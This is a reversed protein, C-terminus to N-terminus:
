DPLNMKRLLAAYRPDSRISSLLPSNKLNSMGSDHQAYGRDLWEFAKDSEGRWAYTEAIQFALTQSDQAILQDLAHQAQEKQGLSYAALATIVLPTKDYKALVLAKEPHHDLVEVMALRFPPWMSGPNLQQARSAAERAADFQHQQALVRSLDVWAADSLPDEDIAKKVVATAQPLQGLSELLLSYNLQTTSNRADYSLAKELDVRAGDWDWLFASRLWGRVAYGEPADPALAIARDAAELARQLAAREGTETDAFEAEAQALGAYASAFNADLAIAKRYAVIALGYGDANQQHFAQRGILYQDYAESSDTHHTSDLQQAPLLKAKLAAVVAGAIDDQVQFIEKLDRDYTQSWVDYGTDTKILQASVRIAHGSQRVSGELVHSVRLKRAITAIDESKGKFYFSSTRAPVRLDPVKTLQDILEESLGDSFYEQDHKESLDIFPLVAISKEGASVVPESRKMLASREIAFYVTGACAILVATLLLLRRRRLGSHTVSQNASRPREIVGAHQASTGPPGSQVTTSPSVLRQVREVFAQGTQGNPLRAWQVALFKEPVRASRESTDDIVVPLLFARDEAMDHTRDVALKWERRFYGEDRAQTNASLVAIFLQCDHIQQRIRQDWVDGGRLEARDFWVEVDAGRLATAIREAAASDESAYSLFVARGQAEILMQENKETVM